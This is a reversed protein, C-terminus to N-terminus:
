EKGRNKLDDLRKRVEGKLYNYDQRLLKGYASVAQGIRGDQELSRGLWYMLEKSLDDGAVEYEDNVEQLVAAAQEFIEREFFSRGMLLKSRTRYKPENQAEQFLPIADDWREAKFLASALRFKERLDTPYKECRETQISIETERQDMVALRLQQEDADLGSERARVKLDRVQRNLQKLVIDDASKKFSYNHTRAYEKRLISIAEDEEAKRERRLLHDVLGSIKAPVGPNAELEKRAAAILNDVADDAQVVRDADHLLKAGDADKLSDRFDEGDRYRGRVITLRSMIDKLDDKAVGDDKNLRAVLDQANVAYELCQVALTHDGQDAIREGASELIQRMLRLKTTNPKKEAKILNLLIPAIWKVTDNFGAKDANKLIGEAYEIKKPDKSLLLEANLMCQKADKGTMPKKYAERMGPKKGGANLRAVSIARLLMHGEEVAEPWFGLGTIYCEIGYEYNRTEVVTKGQQFWRRAKQKDADSFTPPADSADDIKKDAM